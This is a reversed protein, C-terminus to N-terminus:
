YLSETNTHKQTESSSRGRAAEAPAPRHSLHLFLLTLLLSLHLLQQRSVEPIGFESEIWEFHLRDHRAQEPPFMM